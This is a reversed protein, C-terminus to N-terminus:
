ISTQINTFAVKALRKSEDELKTPDFDKISIPPLVELTMCAKEHLKLSHKPLANRSGRIVMPLIDMQSQIALRFAGTKFSKMTGDPSRTGEPFFFISSGKELWKQCLALCRDRSTADGREIPIYGNLVM